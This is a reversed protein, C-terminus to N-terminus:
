AICHESLWADVAFDPLGPLCFHVRDTRGLSYIKKSARRDAESLPHRTFIHAPIYELGSELAVEWEVEMIDETVQDSPHRLYKSHAKSLFHSAAQPVNVLEAAPQGYLVLRSRPYRSRLETAFETVVRRVASRNLQSEPGLTFGLSGIREACHLFGINFILVDTQEPDCYSWIKQLNNEKCPGKVGNFFIHGNNQLQLTVSGAISMNYRTSWFAKNVTRALSRNALRCELSHFFQNMMSDGAICVKKNELCSVAFDVNGRSLHFFKCHSDVAVRWRKFTQRLEGQSCTYHPMTSGPSIHPCAAYNTLTQSRGKKAPVIRATLWCHNKERRLSINSYREHRASTNPKHAKSVRLLLTQPNRMGYAAASFFESIVHDFYVLVLGSLVAVAVVRRERAPRGVRSFQMSFNM